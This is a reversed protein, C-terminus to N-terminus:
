PQLGHPIAASTLGLFQMVQAHLRTSEAARLRQIEVAIALVTHPETGTGVVSNRQDQGADAAHEALMVARQIQQVTGTILDHVMDVVAHHAAASLPV